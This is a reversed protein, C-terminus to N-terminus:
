RYEWHGPIWRRAVIRGYMDREEIWTGPIWVRAPPPPLPTNNIVIPVTLPVTHHVFPVVARHHHHHHPHHIPIPRANATNAAFALTFALILTIFSSSITKIIKNTKSNRDMDTNGNVYQYADLFWNGSL